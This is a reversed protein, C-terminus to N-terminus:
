RCGPGVRGREILTVHSHATFEAWLRAQWASIFTATNVTVTVTEVSTASLYQWRGAAKMLVLVLDRCTSSYAWQVSLFSLIEERQHGRTGGPRSFKYHQLFSAYVQNAAREVDTGWIFQLAQLSILTWRPLFVLWFMFHCFINNIQM